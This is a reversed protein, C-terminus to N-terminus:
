CSIGVIAKGWRITLALTFGLGSRDIGDRVAFVWWSVRRRKSGGGVWYASDSAPVVM